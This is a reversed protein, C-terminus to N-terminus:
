SVWLNMVANVLARWKEKDQALAVMHCTSAAMSELCDDRMHSYIYIYIYISIILPLTSILPM